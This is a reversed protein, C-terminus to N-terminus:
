RTAAAAPTPFVEPYDAPWFPQGELGHSAAYDAFGPLLAETLDTVLTSFGCSCPGQCLEHHYAHRDLYAAALSQALDPRETLDVRGTTGSGPRM